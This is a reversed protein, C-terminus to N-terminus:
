VMGCGVGKPGNPLFNKMDGIAIFNSEIHKPGPWRYGLVSARDYDKVCVENGQNGGLTYVVEDELKVLFGVHGQWALKGRKLVVISGIAPKSDVGWKLWSRANPKDTGRFGAEEMVYNVFASCWPIEDTLSLSGFIKRPVSKLFEIVKSNHRRGPIEKVGIYKKAISLWTPEYDLV